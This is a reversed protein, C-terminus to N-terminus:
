ILSSKGFIWRTNRLMAGRLLLQDPGLPLARSYSVNVIMIVTTYNMIYKKVRLVECPHLHTSIQIVSNPSYSLILLDVNTNYLLKRYTMITEYSYIHNNYTELCLFMKWLWIYLLTRIHCRLSSWFAGFISVSQWFSTHKWCFWVFTQKTNWMRNYWGIRVVDWPNVVTCDRACGTTVM